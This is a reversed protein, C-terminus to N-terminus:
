EYQQKTINYGRARQTTCLYLDEDWLENEFFIADIYDTSIRGNYSIYTIETPLYDHMCYRITKTIKSHIVMYRDCLNNLVANFADTFSLSGYKVVLRQIENTIINSLEGGLRADGRNDYYDCIEDWYEDSCPTNFWIRGFDFMDSWPIKMRVTRDDSVHKGGGNVAIRIAAGSKPNVLTIHCDDWAIEAKLKASDCWNDLIWAVAMKAAKRHESFGSIKNYPFSDKYSITIKNKKLENEIAYLFSESASM